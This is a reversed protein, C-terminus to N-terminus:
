RAGDWERQDAAAGGPLIMPFCAERPDVHVDIVATREAAFAKSLAADLEGATHVAFGLAGYGRAIAVFDPMAARLDVQSLREAYFLSQWQHVMGLQGNNLIVVVVPLDAAVSTALEQLTMQFSGDGDLCIVTADPRAARAGIAAPLGFGMTGHGGSTVFSRPRDVAVYQMAWMQHQGVGTTWVVDTHNATAESVRRLVDQPKLAHATTGHRLPYRERWALLQGLWPARHPAPQAVTEVLAALVM